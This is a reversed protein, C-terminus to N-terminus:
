KKPEPEPEPEPETEPEAEPEPDSNQSKWVGSIQRSQTLPVNCSPRSAQAFLFQEFWNLGAKGAVAM